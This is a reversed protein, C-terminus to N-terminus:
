SAHCYFEWGVCCGSAPQCNSDLCQGQSFSFDVCEQDTDFCEGDCMVAAAVATRPAGLSVTAAGLSFTAAVFLRNRALM